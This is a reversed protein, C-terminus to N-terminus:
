APEQFCEDLADGVESVFIVAALILCALSTCVSGAAFLLKDRM